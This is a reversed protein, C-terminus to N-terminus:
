KQHWSYRSDIQTNYYSKSNNRLDKRLGRIEDEMAKSNLMENVNIQSDKKSRLIYNM